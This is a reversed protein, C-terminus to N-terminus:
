QEYVFLACDKIALTSKRYLGGHQKTNCLIINVNQFYNNVNIMKQM